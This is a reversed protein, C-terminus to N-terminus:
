LNAHTEGDTLVKNLREQKIKVLRRERASLTNETIVSTFSKEIEENSQDNCVNTPENVTDVPENLSFVTSENTEVNVTETEEVKTPESVHLMAIFLEEDFSLEEGKIEKKLASNEKSLEANKKKLSEIEKRLEAMEDVIDNVKQETKFEVKEKIEIFAGTKMSVFEDGEKAKNLRMEASMAKWVFRSGKAFQGVIVAKNDDYAVIAPAKELTAVGIKVNYMQQVTLANEILGLLKSRMNRHVDITDIFAKLKNRNNSIDNVQVVKKNLSAITTGNLNEFIAFKM